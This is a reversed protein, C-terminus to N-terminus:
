FSFKAQFRASRAGLFSNAKGYQDNPRAPTAMAAVRATTDFGAFFVADSPLVLADRYKTAFKTLETDQDFLNDINFQLQVNMNRPLKFNQTFNLDTYNVMPSRGMDGRGFVFVPVGKYTVSTTNLLGSQAVFNVGVNTGWPLQYGGNAKFSFPRDSQLRGYSAQGTQNFSMYLGDFSRNVNPSNRGNEDSNTLGAYNGYTRSITVSANAFWNNNFRRKLSIDLGDYTRKPRPTDPFGAGLPSKGFGKGPNAIYYVEGVGPVQVGVDEITENLWKHAYRVGVSMTRNLEHDLGLTLEQTKVPKLDPDVLNDKPDNSVHRFDVQEIFTGRCGSNAPGTCDITNWNYDDLTWYYSVWRDAGWAGRPMDLKEIDYFVGWSGYAKWKSDGKLDYAFGLRPSIKDGWGFTLGPNEPRYSPINTYEARVGYNVTLKGNLTWQDQLFLGFNNSAIDGETYSRSVTYYGYKGRVQTNSLTARSSNWSFSINPAQQGSSAQNEIREMQVGFKFAHQGKFDRYMTLDSNVSYRAFNNYRTFSNSANDTYGSLQQLNAPVDLFGVNPQAFSRVTGDYYTGGQNGSGYGLYGGTLNAYMRDNITWDFSGTYSDNYGASFITPRPNFLTANSTSTSNTTDIVPLTLGGTTRTNIGTARIRMSNNFSHTVNYQYTNDTTKANFSQTPPFGRNNTWTVTRDTNNINNSYGAWFWTRNKFIPGGVEYVQEIRETENLRPALFYESKTQDTPVLRLVPRVDGALRRLRRGTVYGGASGHFANTGSKTIASVVGGTAARFEANYGSQKVQIQEVFDVIVGRASVGTQLNTTDMGDVMYRIESAGAGDIMLGGGRSEAGTGPVGLIADLFNRGTPLLKIVDSTITATVSNQKVDVIPAEARVQVTEALGAVAMTMDVKLIQGVRLDVDDVKATNFGSLTSTVGYKGPALSPFRYSGSADSVTTQTANSAIHKAEVTVGPLVGGSGDKVTGQISGRVEQAAVPSAWVLALVLLMGVLSAKRM